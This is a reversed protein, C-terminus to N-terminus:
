NSMLKNAVLTSM